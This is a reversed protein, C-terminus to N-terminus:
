KDLKKLLTHDMILDVGSPSDPRTTTDVLGVDLDNASDMNGCATPHGEHLERSVYELTTSSSSVHRKREKIWQHNTFRPSM